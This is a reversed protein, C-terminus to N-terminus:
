CPGTSKNNRPKRPGFIRKKRLSPEVKLPYDIQWYRFIKGMCTKVKQSCCASVTTTDSRGVSKVIESVSDWERVFNGDLDYELIRRRRVANSAAVAEDTPRIGKSKMTDSTKKRHEESLTKGKQSDSIKQRSELSLKGGGKNWPNNGSKFVFDEGGTTQNFLLMAESFKSIWYREREIWSSGECEELIKLIPIYGLASLDRIWKHKGNLHKKSFATTVHQRLRRQPDLSSTKGIYKIEGELPCILAYITTNM